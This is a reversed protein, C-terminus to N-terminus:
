LFNFEVDDKHRRRCSPSILNVTLIVILIVFPCSSKGQNEARLDEAALPWPEVAEGVPYARLKSSWWKQFPKRRFPEPLIRPSTGSCQVCRDM